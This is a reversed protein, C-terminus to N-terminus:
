ALLFLLDTKEASDDRIAYDKPYAVTDEEFVREKKESASASEMASQHDANADAIVTKKIPM